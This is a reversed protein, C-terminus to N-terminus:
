FETERYQKKSKDQSSTVLRTKDKKPPTIPYAMLPDTWPDNIIICTQAPDYIYYLWKM